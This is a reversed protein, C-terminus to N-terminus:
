VFLYYEEAQLLSWGVDIEWQEAAGLFLLMMLLTHQLHTAM